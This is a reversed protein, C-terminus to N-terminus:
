VARFITTLARDIKGLARNTFGTVFSFNLNSRKSIVVGARISVKLTQNILPGDSRVSM